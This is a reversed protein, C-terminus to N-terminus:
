VRKKAKAKTNTKKTPFRFTTANADWIYGKEAMHDKLTKSPATITWAINEEGSQWIPISKKWYPHTQMLDEDRDMQAVMVAKRYKWNDKRAFYWAFATNLKKGKEDTYNFESHGLYDWVSLNVGQLYIDKDDKVEEQEDDDFIWKRFSFM